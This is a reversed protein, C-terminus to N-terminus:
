LEKLIVRSLGVRYEKYLQDGWSCTVAAGRDTVNNVCEYIDSEM